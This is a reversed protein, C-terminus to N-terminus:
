PALGQKYEGMIISSTEGPAQHLKAQTVYEGINRPRSYAIIAREIGIQEQFVERCHKDWLYRIQKRSIDHPHYQLHIFLTKDMEDDRTTDSTAAAPLKGRSEMKNAVEMFIPYITDKDWGRDRLRRYLLRVFHIYDERHTNQAYYRSILAYIVGKISTNPHLSLHLTFVL